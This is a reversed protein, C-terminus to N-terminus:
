FQVCACLTPPCHVACLHLCWGEIGVIPKLIENTPFCRRTKNNRNLQHIFKESSHLPYILNMATTTTAPTTTTTTTTSETATPIPYAFMPFHDIAPPFVVPDIYPYLFLPEETATTMPLSLVFNNDNPAISIDACSYM